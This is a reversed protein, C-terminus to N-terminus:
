NAYNTYTSAKFEISAEYYQGWLTCSGIQAKRFYQVCGVFHVLRWAFVRQL